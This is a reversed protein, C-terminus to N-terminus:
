RFNVDIIECHQSIRYVVYMTALIRTLEDRYSTLLAPHEDVPGAGVAVQAGLLSSAFEWGHSAIATTKNHSDDSCGM